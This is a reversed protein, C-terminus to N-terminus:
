RAPTRTTVKVFVFALALTISFLVIGVASGYSMDWNAFSVRYTFLDIVDTASGPGGNTLIYVKDFEKFADVARFLVAVVLIPKLMPLTVYRLTRWGTAGDIQAAEFPEVPLAQLGALLILAMFPTWEWVDTFILTPFAWTKSGLLGQPLPLHLQQIIYTFLGFQANFVFNYMLGIVLPTMVAPIMLLTVFVRQGGEISQLLLAIALGFCLEVLVGVFVFVLTLKMANWFEPDHILRIYNALGIGQGNMGTQVLSYSEFSLKLSYIIPFVTVALLVAIMPVHFSIGVLTERRPRRVGYGRRRKDALGSTSNGAVEVPRL